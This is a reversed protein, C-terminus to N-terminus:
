SNGKKEERASGTKQQNTDGTGSGTDLKDGHKKAPEHEGADQNGPEPPVKMDYHIPDDPQDPMASEEAVEIGNRSFFCDCADPRRGPGVRKGLQM